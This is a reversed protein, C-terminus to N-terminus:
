VVPKKLLGELKEVLLYVTTYSKEDSDLNDLRRANEIAKQKLKPNKHLENFLKTDNKRYSYDKYKIPYHQKLCTEIKEKYQERSILTEIFRFHLLFWLEFAEVSVASCYLPCKRSRRNSSTTANEADILRLAEQFDNRNQEGIKDFDDRDFVCWVEDYICNQSALDIAKQVLTVTNKGEGSIAINLNKRKNIQEKYWNFYGPETKKGECVILMSFDTAQREKRRADSKGFKSIRPREM